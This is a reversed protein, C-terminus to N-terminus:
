SAGAHASGRRGRRRRAVPPERPSACNRGARRRRTRERRNGTRVPASASTCRWCTLPAVTFTKATSWDASGGTGGTFTLSTPRVSVKTADTSTPTVTVTVGSGPDTDLVATYSGALGGETLSLSTPSLTVGASPTSAGATITFDASLNGPGTGSNGAARLLASEITLTVTVDATIAGGTYALTIEASRHGTRGGQVITTDRQLIKASAVTLGTPASTLAFKVAPNTVRGEGGAIFQTRDAPLIDSASLGSNNNGGAGFFTAGNDPRITITAGHLDAAPITAPTLTLSFTPAQAAAPLALGALLLGLLPLALLSAALRRMRGALGKGPTRDRGEAHRDLNTTSAAFTMPIM